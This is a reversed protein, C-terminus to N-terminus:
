EHHAIRSVNIGFFKLVLDTGFAMVSGLVAMVMTVIVAYLVRDNNYIEAIWLNVGTLNKTEIVRNLTTETKGGGEGAYINNYVCAVIFFFILVTILKKPLM